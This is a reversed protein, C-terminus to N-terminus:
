RGRAWERVGRTWELSSKTSGEELFRALAGSTLSPLFSSEALAEYGEDRLGLIQAEVYACCWVEPVGIRAYVPRRDLLSAGGSVDVDVVLDPPSDGAALDIEKRGRVLAANPSFYFSQDAEFGAELDEVAFTARGVGLLDLDMEFALTEVLSAMTRSIQEHRASSSVLELAGRDYYLLPKVREPDDELLREYAEWSVRRLLVRQDERTTTM